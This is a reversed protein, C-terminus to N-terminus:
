STRTLPLGDNPELKAEEPRTEPRNPPKPLSRREFTPTHGDVRNQTSTSASTVNFNSDPLCYKQTQGFAARLMRRNRHRFTYLKDMFRCSASTSTKNGAGDFVAVVWAVVWEVHRQGDVNFVVFVTRRRAYWEEWTPPPPLASSSSQRRHVPGAAAVCCATTWAKRPVDGGFSGITRLVGFAPRWL